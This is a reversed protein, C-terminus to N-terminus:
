AKRNADWYQDIYTDYPKKYAHDWTMKMFDDPSLPVQNEASYANPSSSDPETYIGTYHTSIREGNPTNFVGNISPQDKSHRSNEQIDFSPKGNKYTSYRFLSMGSPLEEGQINRM